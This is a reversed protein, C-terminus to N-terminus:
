GLGGAIRLEHAKEIIEAAEDNRALGDPHVDTRRRLPTGVEVADLALVALDHACDAGASHGPRAGGHPRMEGVAALTILLKGLLKAIVLARDGFNAICPPM